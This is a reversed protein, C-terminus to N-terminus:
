LGGGEKGAERDEAARSGMILDIMWSASSVPVPESEDRPRVLALLRFRLLSSRSNLSRSTGEKLGSRSISGGFGSGLGLEAELVLELIGRFTDLRLEAAAAPETGKERDRLKM